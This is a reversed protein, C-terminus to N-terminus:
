FSVELGAYPGQLRLDVDVDNSEDDYEVEFARILYGGVLSARIREDGGFLKLRLFADASWCMVADDQYSGNFGSGLVQAELPGFSVSALAAVVPIIFIESTEVTAGTGAEEFAVDFDTVNAGIGLALEFMDTPLVDFLLLGDYAGLDLQTEVTAGAPITVTGDDVAADLTGTGEFRPLVGALVVHPSGFKLDFRGGVAGEEELGAEELDTRATVSGSAIGAEGTVEQLTYRPMVDVKPLACGGAILACPLVFLLPARM